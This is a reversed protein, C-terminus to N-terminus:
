PFFLRNTPCGQPVEEGEMAQRVQDEIPWTIAGVICSPPLITSPSKSGVEPDFLRSLTLSAM